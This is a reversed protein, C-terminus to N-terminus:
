RARPVPGAFELTDGVSVGRRQFFGRNVELAYRAKGASRIPTEELPKMRRIDIIKMDKNIFAISLPIFTNKMYFFRYDEEPYVFLMGSDEALEKRYMLGKKRAEPTAALEVAYVREGIALKVSDRPQTCGAAALLLFFLCCVAPCLPLPRTKTEPSQYSVTM